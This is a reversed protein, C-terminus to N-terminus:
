RLECRSRLSRVKLRGPGAEKILEALREGTRKAQRRGLETLIRRADDKHTEDYQGHRILIVHRTVGQSLSMCLSLSM